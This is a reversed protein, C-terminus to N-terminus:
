DAGKRLSDMSGPRGALLSTGHEVLPDESRGLAQLREAIWRELEAEMSAAIQPQEEAINHEEEPDAVLDYLERMPTGYLDPMRAMIFKHSDTRLSWKAQWSCELSIVRDYGGEQEEGTLLKWMSRGEMERPIPVGTAELLTPALDQTQFTQPLRLGPAIRGPLRAIFPVHLVADYLGHHEFFIGHETMSEGHDATFMVLTNEALGLEDV